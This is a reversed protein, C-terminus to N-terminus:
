TIELTILITAIFITVLQIWWVKSFTKAVFEKPRKYDILALILFYGIVHIIFEILEKM